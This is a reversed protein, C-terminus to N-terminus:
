SNCIICKCRTKHSSRRIVYFVSVGVTIHSSRHIVYFLNLHLFRLSLRHFAYFGWIKLKLLHGM